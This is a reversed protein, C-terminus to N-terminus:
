FKHMAERGIMIAIRKMLRNDWSHAALSLFQNTDVTQM